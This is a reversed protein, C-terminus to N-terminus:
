AAENRAQFPEPRVSGAAITTAAPILQTQVYLLLDRVGFPKSMVKKINTRSIQEESLIHGRATLLLLPISSTCPEASLRTALELGNMYPMQLDTIVAVPRHKLILELAEDGDRAEFVTYGATRLKESVVLRIPPEDDAVIITPGTGPSQIM